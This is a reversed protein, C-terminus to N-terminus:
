NVTSLAAVILFLQDHHHHDVFIIGRFKVDTLVKLLINLKKERSNDLNKINVAFPFPM